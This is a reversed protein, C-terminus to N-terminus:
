RIVFERESRLAREGVKGVLVELVYAGERLSTIDLIISRMQVPVEGPVTRSRRGPDPERWSITVPTNPDQSVGAAAGARQTLTLPTRRQVRLSVEVPDRESFGYTEWYVGIRSTGVPLSTSGLMLATAADADDPLESTGGPVLLLVPDSIGTQGPRMFALPNPPTVGFRTRGAAHGASDWPIEFSAVVARNPIAELFVARDSARTRRTAVRLISDPGPSILLQIDVSDNASRGLDTLGLNTSFAMLAGDERRLLASQQGAFQVITHAPAYHEQPWWNIANTTDRPANITWDSLRSVFPNQLASWTPVAHVRDPSYELTSGLSPPPKDVVDESMYLSGINIGTGGQWFDAKVNSWFGDLTPNHGDSSALAAPGGFQADVLQAPSPYGLRGGAMLTGGGMMMGAPMRQRIDYKSLAGKAVAASPSSARPEPLGPAASRGFAAYTPWGYRRIAQDLADGGKEPTWWYREDHLTAAHLTITMTRTYQEVRRDNGPVSWLPDALWWMRENFALRDACSMAKYGARAASDLLTGVDTWTCRDGEIIWAAATAYETGATVVNGALASVYGRLAFCWYELAKCGAAVRAARELNGQDVLLRVMQGTVAMNGPMATLASDMVAIATDRAFSITPRLKPDIAGDIGLREDPVDPPGFVPDKPPLWNPCVGLPINASEIRRLELEAGWRRDPKYSADTSCTLDGQRPNVRILSAPSRSGTTFRQDTIVARRAESARWANNWVALLKREAAVARALLAVTDHPDVATRRAPTRAGGGQPAMSLVAVLLALTPM